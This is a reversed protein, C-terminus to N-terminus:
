QSAQGTLQYRCLSNLNSETANTGFIVIAQSWLKLVTVRVIYIESEIDV